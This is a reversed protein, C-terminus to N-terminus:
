CKKRRQGSALLRNAKRKLTSPYKGTLLYDLSIGYIEALEALTERTPLCYGHEFKSLMPEDISNLKAAVQKLTLGKKERSTKLITGIARDSLIFAEITDRENGFVIRTQGDLKGKKSIKDLRSKKRWLAAYQSNIYIAFEDSNALKIGQPTSIIIKQIVNSENIARIDKTLLHRAPSDHFNKEYNWNKDGYYNVLDMVIQIQTIWNDGQEKLYNYLAFQRSNLEKKM